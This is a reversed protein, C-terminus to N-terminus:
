SMEKNKNKMEQSNIEEKKIKEKRVPRPYLLLLYTMFAVKKRRFM